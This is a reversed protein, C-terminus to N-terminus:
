RRAAARGFYACVFRASARQRRAGSRASWSFFFHRAKIICSPAPHAGPPVKCEIIDVSKWVTKVCATDGIRARPSTDFSGFGKGRFTITTKANAPANAPGSAPYLVPADFTFFGTVTYVSSTPMTVVLNDQFRVGAPHLTSIISSDSVWRTSTCASFGVRAKVDSKFRGIGSGLITVFTGGSGPGNAPQLRTFHLCAARPLGVALLLALVLGRVPLSSRCSMGGGGDGDRCHTGLSALPALSGNTTTRHSPYETPLSWRHKGAGTPESRRDSRRHHRCESGASHHMNSERCCEHEVDMDGM